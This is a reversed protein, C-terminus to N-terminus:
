NHEQDAHRGKPSACAAQQRGLGDQPAEQWEPHIQVVQNGSMGATASIQDRSKAAAERCAFIEVSIYKRIRVKICKNRM